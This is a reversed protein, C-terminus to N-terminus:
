SLREYFIYSMFSILVIFMFLLTRNMLKGVEERYYEVELEIMDTQALVMPPCEDRGGLMM